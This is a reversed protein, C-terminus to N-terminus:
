KPEETSAAGIIAVLTMGITTIQDSLEPSIHLGLVTGASALIIGWVTKESLRAIVWDKIVKLVKM